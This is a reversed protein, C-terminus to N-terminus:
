ATGGQLAAVIEVHSKGQAVLERVRPATSASGVFVREMHGSSGVWAAAVAKGSASAIAGEIVGELFPAAVVSPNAIVCVLARGWRELHVVGVGAVALEGALENVVAELTSGLVASAGGLRAVVREGAAHGVSAGLARLATPHADALANVADAPFLVLRSGRPDMTAGRPLDFRVSGTPDFGSRAM